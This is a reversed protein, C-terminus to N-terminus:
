TDSAIWEVHVIMRATRRDVGTDRVPERVVSQEKSRRAGNLWQQGLRIKELQKKQEVYQQGAANHFM